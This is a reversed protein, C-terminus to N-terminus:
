QPIAAVVRESPVMGMAVRGDDTLVVTVLASTLVRGTGWPGQVTPLNQVTQEWQAAADGHRPDTTPQEDTTAPREPVRAITVRDWGDGVTVPEDMAPKDAPQGERHDKGKPTVQEVAVGAPPRFAFVSDDPATFDVSTFGVSLAPQNKGVAWAEVRLPAKTESDVAIAIKAVLTDPSTPDLVLEYADRGAVRATQSVTVSTTPEIHALMERAAEQPTRPTATPAPREGAGEHDSLVTHKAMREKSSWQWVDNGNRIMATEAGDALLAVRSKDEGAHWVRITHTGSTLAAVDSDGIPLAPLGLDARTQVTGSFADVNSNQLDVLLQEATVPPLAPDAVARPAVFAVGVAAVAVAPVAWRIMPHRSTLAM